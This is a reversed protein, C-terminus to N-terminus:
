VSAEAACDPRRLGSADSPLAAGVPPSCLTLPLRLFPLSPGTRMVMKISLCLQLQKSTSATLPSLSKIKGRREPSLIVGREEAGIRLKLKKGKKFFFIYIQCNM